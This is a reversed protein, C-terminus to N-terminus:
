WDGSLIAFANTPLIQNEKETLVGWSLLQRETVPMVQKKKTEQQKAVKTMKKCLSEIEKQSVQLDLCPMKDYSRNSGEFLLEKVMTEDAQRTIGSVRM